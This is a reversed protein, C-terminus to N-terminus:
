GEAQAAKSQKLEEEIWELPGLLWGRMTLAIRPRQRPGIRFSVAQVKARVRDGRRIVRNTGEEVVIGERENIMVRRSSIQSIHVFGDIPGLNVRIGYTTVEDVKGEVVENQELRFVLLDFRARHWTGPDGPVIRGQEEIDVDLVTVIIGKLEPSVRGEYKERLVRLAADKLPYGFYRPPIRVVDEVRAVMYM